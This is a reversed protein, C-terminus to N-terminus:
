IVFMEILMGFVALQNWKSIILLKGLILIRVKPLCKLALIIRKLKKLLVYEVLFKLLRSSKLNIFGLIMVVIVYRGLNKVIGIM